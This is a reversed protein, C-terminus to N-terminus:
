WWWVMGWEVWGVVRVLGVGCWEGRVLVTGVLVGGGRCGDVGGGGKM